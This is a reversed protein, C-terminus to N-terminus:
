GSEYRVGMRSRAVVKMKVGINGRDKGGGGDWVWWYEDGESIGLQSDAMRTAPCASKAVDGSHRIVTILKVKLHWLLWLTKIELWGSGACKCSQKEKSSSSSRSAMTVLIWLIAAHWGDTLELNSLTTLSSSPGKDSGCGSRYM